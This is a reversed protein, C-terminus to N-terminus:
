SHSDDRKNGKNALRSKYQKTKEEVEDALALAEKGSDLERYESVVTLIEDCEEITAGDCGYLVGAPWEHITYILWSRLNRALEGIAWSNNKETQLYRHLLKYESIWQVTRWTEKDSYLNQMTLILCKLAHQNNEYGPIVYPVIIGRWFIHNIKNGERDDCLIDIFQPNPNALYEEVVTRALENAKVRLGKSKLAKYIEYSPYM